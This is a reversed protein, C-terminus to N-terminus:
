ESPLRSIRVRGAAFRLAARVDDPGRDVVGATWDAPTKDPLQWEQRAANCPGTLDTAFLPSDHMSRFMGDRDTWARLAFLAASEGLSYGIAAAPKVGFEALLDAVLSGLTM